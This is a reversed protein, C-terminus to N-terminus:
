ISGASGATFYVWCCYLDIVISVSCNTLITPVFYSSPITATAATATPYDVLTAPARAQNSREAPQKIDFSQM